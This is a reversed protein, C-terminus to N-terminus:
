VNIFLITWPTSSHIDGRWIAALYMQIVKAGSNALSVCLICILLSFYLLQPDITLLTADVCRHGDQRFAATLLAVM